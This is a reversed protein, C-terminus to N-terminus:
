NEHFVEKKKRLRDIICLFTMIFLGAVFGGVHAANNVNEAVFGSYLSYIIMILMRPLTINEWKGGKAVVLVLVAGIVGYIAGSAGVSTFMHGIYIEFVASALNGVFASLFYLLTYKIHGIKKELENGLFYLVLMNGVLHYIDVHLFVSTLFRYYEKTEKILLISFAGKNYLVDQTFACLIFILINIAVIAVNIFPLEKFSKKMLSKQAQQNEKRESEATYRSPNRLFEELKGKLGYFDEIHGEPIYLKGEELHLYWCFTDKAFITAMRDLDNCLVITVLHVNAFGKEKFSQIFKERIGTYIEESLYIEKQYDITMVVEAIGNGPLFYVSFEPLSTVANIYGIYQLFTGLKEKM